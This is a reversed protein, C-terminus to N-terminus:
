KEGENEEIYGQLRTFHYKIATADELPTIKYLYGKLFYLSENAEKNTM